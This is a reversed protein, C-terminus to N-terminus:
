LRKQPRETGAQLIAEFFPLLNIAVEPVYGRDKSPTKVVAALKAWEDEELMLYGEGHKESVTFAKLINAAARVWEYDQGFLPERLRGEVFGRFSATAQKETDTLRIPTGDFALLGIDEVLHVYRM